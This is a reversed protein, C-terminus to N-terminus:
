QSREPTKIRLKSCIECRSRTNRNNEKLSYFGAPDSYPLIRVLSFEINPSKESLAPTVTGSRRIFIKLENIALTGM